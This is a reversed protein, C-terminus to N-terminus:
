AWEDAIAEGPHVAGGWAMRAVLDSQESDIDEGLSVTYEFPQSLEEEDELDRKNRHGNGNRGSNAKTATPTAAATVTSIM